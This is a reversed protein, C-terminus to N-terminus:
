ASWLLEQGVLHAEDDVVEEEVRQASNRPRQQGSCCRPWPCEALGDADLCEVRVPLVLLVPRDHANPWVVEGEGIGPRPLVDIAVASPALFIAGM